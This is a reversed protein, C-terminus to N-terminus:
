KNLKNFLEKSLEQFDDEKISKITLPIRAYRERRHIISKSLPYDNFHEDFYRQDPSEKRYFNRVIVAKKEIDDNLETLADYFLVFANLDIERAVVPIVILDALEMLFTKEPGQMTGATDIIIYDKVGDYQDLFFGWAVSDSNNFPAVQYLGNDLWNESTVSKGSGTAMDQIESKRKHYITRQTHDADVVLVSKKQDYHLWSALSMAITSKGQSKQTALVIYKTEIM